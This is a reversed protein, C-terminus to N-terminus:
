FIIGIASCFMTRNFAGRGARGSSATWGTALLRPPLHLPVAPDTARQDTKEKGSQEAEKGEPQNVKLHDLVVLVGPEGRLFVNVLLRDERLAARDEVRVVFDERMVRWDLSDHGIRRM